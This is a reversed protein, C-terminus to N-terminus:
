VAGLRRAYASFCPRPYGLMSVGFSPAVPACPEVLVSSGSKSATAALRSASPAGLRLFGVGVFLRGGLALSQQGVHLREGAGVNKAVRSSTV